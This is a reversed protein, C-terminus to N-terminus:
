FPQFKAALKREKPQVKKQPKSSFPASMPCPLGSSFIEGGHMFIDKEGQEKLDSPFFSIYDRIEAKGL